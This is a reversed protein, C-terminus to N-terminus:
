KVPNIKMGPGMSSAIAVSKIFLGKIGTPKTKNLSEWFADFNEKLQAESFSARGILAHVNGSDDNKYNVKGKKISAVSEAVNTTVTGDKPNPMLGKPGLIKAVPGLLKMADPTAVLVDFSVKGNKIEEVLDKDGVLDAGAEKAAKQQDGNTTVVAVKQTKGTGHPLAVTSRIQQDSKKLDINVKAHVEIGADFKVTSTKKALALAEEVTYIKKPDVLKAAELYRKSSKHEVKKM